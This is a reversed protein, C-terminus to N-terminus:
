AAGHDERSPQQHPHSEDGGGKDGGERPKVEGVAGDCTPREAVVANELLMFCLKLKYIHMKEYAM